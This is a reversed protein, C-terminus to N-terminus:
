PKLPHESKIKNGDFWFVTETNSAFDKLLIGTQNMPIAMMPKEIRIVYDDFAFFEPLTLAIGNLSCLSESLIIARDKIIPLKIFIFGTKNNEEGMLTEDFIDPGIFVQKRARYKCLFNLLREFTEKKM